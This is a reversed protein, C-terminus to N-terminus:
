KPPKLITSKCREGPGLIVGHSLAHLHAVLINLSRGRQMQHFIGQTGGHHVDNGAWNNFDPEM